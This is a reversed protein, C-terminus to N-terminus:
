VGTAPSAGNTHGNGLPMAVKGNRLTFKVSGVQLSDRKHLSSETIRQGNVFTGVTSGLDRVVLHGRQAVIECHKRELSPLAIRLDCRQEKGIITRAKQIPYVREHGDATTMALWIGM